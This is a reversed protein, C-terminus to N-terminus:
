RSGCGKQTEPVGGRNQDSSSPNFFHVVYDFYQADHLRGTKSVNKVERLDVSKAVLETVRIQQDIRKMLVKENVSQDEAELTTIICTLIWTTSIRRMRFRSIPFCTIWM